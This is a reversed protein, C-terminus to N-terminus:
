SRDRLRLVRQVYHQTEQYPPIGGHSDVAGPGANYAALAKKVDGGYRNLMQKLYRAGGAINQAPDFANTVGVARATSDMLQMVGKAGSPSVAQPDLNSEARAVAKVLKPDVGERAAAQRILEDFRGPQVSGGDTAALPTAAVVHDARPKVTPSLSFGSRRARDLAAQVVSSHLLDLSASPNIPV